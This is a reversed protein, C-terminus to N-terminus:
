KGQSCQENHHRYTRRTRQEAGALNASTRNQDANTEQEENRRPLSPNSELIQRPNLDRFSVAFGIWIGACLRLDYLFSGTGIWDQSWLARQVSLRLIRFDLRLSLNEAYWIDLRIQQRVDLLSRQEHLQAWGFIGPKVQERHMYGPIRVAYYLHNDPSLPRPGVLSLDGRLLNLLEPLRDLNSRALVKPFWKERLELMEDSTTKEPRTRFTLLYFQRGDKGVCVRGALPWNGLAAWSCLACVLMLPSVFTIAILAAFIDIGRKIVEDKVAGDPLRPVRAAIYGPVKRQRPPIRKYV